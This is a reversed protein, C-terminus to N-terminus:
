VVACGKEGDEEHLDEEAREDLRHDGENPHEDDVRLEGGGAEDDYGRDHVGRAACDTRTRADRSPFGSACHCEKSCYRVKCASCRKSDYNLSKDCAACALFLM